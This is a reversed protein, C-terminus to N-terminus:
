FWPLYAKGPLCNDRPKGLTHLRYSGVKKSRFQYRANEVKAHSQGFSWKFLLVIAEYPLFNVQMCEKPPRVIVDETLGYVRNSLFLCLCQKYDWKHVGYLGVNVRKHILHGPDHSTWFSRCKQDCMWGHRRQQTPKAGPVWNSVSLAQNSRLIPSVDM